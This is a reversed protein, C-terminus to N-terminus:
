LFWKEAAIIEQTTVEAQLRESQLKCTRRLLHPNEEQTSQSGGSDLFMLRLHNNKRFLGLAYNVHVDYITRRIETNAHSSSPPSLCFMQSFLGLIPITKAKVLINKFRLKKTGRCRIDDIKMGHSTDTLRCVSPKNGLHIKVLLQDSILNM